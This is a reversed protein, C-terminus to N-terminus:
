AGAEYNDAFHFPATVGASLHAAAELAVEARQRALASHGARMTHLAGLAFPAGCGVAAYRDSSRAVQYDSYVAYLQQGTGVLFDGAHEAGESTTAYGGAKLIGRIADVFRTAMFSDVDWTDVVPLHGAYRLLQGMRFSSTFGFVYDDRRFVKTDARVITAYGPGAASDGGILVGKPTEIGVICTVRGGRCGLM